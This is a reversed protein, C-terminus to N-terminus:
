PHGETEAWTRIEPTQSLGTGRRPSGSQALYKPNKRGRGMQGEGRESKRERFCIFLDKLFPPRFFGKFLWWSSCLPCPSPPEGQASFHTFSMMRWPTLAGDPTPWMGMEGACLGAPLASRAAYALLPGLSAPVERGLGLNAGRLRAEGREPAGFACRFRGM